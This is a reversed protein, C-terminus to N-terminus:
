MADRSKQLFCVNAEYIFAVPTQFPNGALGGAKHHQGPRSECLNRLVAPAHKEIIHIVIKSRLAQM